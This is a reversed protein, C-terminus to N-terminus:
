KYKWAGLIRWRTQNNKYICTLGHQECCFSNKYDKLGSPEYESSYGNGIRDSYTPFRLIPLFTGSHRYHHKIKPPMFTSTSQLITALSRARCQGMMISRINGRM